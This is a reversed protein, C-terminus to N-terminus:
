KIWTSLGPTARATPTRSFSCASIMGGVPPWRRCGSTSRTSRTILRCRWTTCTNLTSTGSWTGPLNIGGDPVLNTAHWPRTSGIAGPITGFTGTGERTIASRASSIWESIRTASTNQRFVLVSDVYICWGTIASSSNATAVIDVPSTSGLPQVGVSISALCPAAALVLGALLKAVFRM